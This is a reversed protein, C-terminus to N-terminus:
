EVVPLCLLKVKDRDRMGVDVGLARSRVRARNKRFGGSPRLRLDVRLGDSFACSSDSLPLSASLRTALEALEASAPRADLTISALGSSSCGPLDVDVVNVCVGVPFLCSQNVLRDADCPDGDRCIAHRAPRGPKRPLLELGYFEVLCNREPHGRGAVLSDVPTFMHLSSDEDEGNFTSSLMVVRGTFADIDLGTAFTLGSAFSSSGGGAALRVVDGGFSGTVLLSGDRDFGLDYSGHAFTPGSVTEVFIGSSDYRSIKSEFSDTSEAVLLSGDGDFALGSTFDIGSAVFDTAGSSSLELVRGAGSGVADGVYVAGAPGVAVGSATPITGAPVLENGLATLGSATSAQALAFVTDGTVGGIELANDAVYLVDAASDYACNSIANFGSALVREAGSPTVFVLQQAGATFGPGVAVFIGGPAAAVCGQTTDGLLQSDYIYGAQASVQASAPGAGVAFGAAIALATAMMVSSNFLFIGAVRAALLVRM